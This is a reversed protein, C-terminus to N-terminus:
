DISTPGLFKDALALVRFLAANPLPPLVVGTTVRVFARLASGHTVILIAGERTPEADIARRVGRVMRETVQDYLEAGPPLSGDARYCQWEDPYRAECEEPTLGEFWGFGRERLDADVGVPGLLLTNAVIEATRRARSLDSAVIRAIGVGAVKAALVSAQAEGTENLPVDTWGQWRRAQNWSTEGHRALYLFVGM